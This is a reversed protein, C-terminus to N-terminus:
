LVWSNFQVVQVILLSFSQELTWRGTCMSTRDKVCTDWEDDAGVSTSYCWAFSRVGYVRLKGCNSAIVCENERGTRWGAEWWFPQLHTDRDDQHYGRNKSQQNVKLWKLVKGTVNLCWFWLQVPTVRQSWSFCASIMLSPWQPPSEWFLNTLTASLSHISIDIVCVCM